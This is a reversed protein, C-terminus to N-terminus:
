TSVEGWRSVLADLEAKVSITRCMDTAKGGTIRKCRSISGDAIKRPIDRTMTLETLLVNVMDQPKTM